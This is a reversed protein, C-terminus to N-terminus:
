YRVFASLIRDPLKGAERTLQYDRESCSVLRNRPSGAPADIPVQVWWRGSRPSRWFTVQDRLQTDVVYETMGKSEVPFDNCRLSMGYLFYWALQAYAAATLHLATNSDGESPCGYVGFSAMRDSNGGYFCLQSAEQLSFGSAHWGEQAPAEAHLISGIHFQMVDCDRIAPELETLEARALGLPFTDFHRREFLAALAPDVLHRQAGIHCLHFAPTGKRHIAADLPRAPTVEAASSLSVSQDVTCIGVQRNLEGFALYQARIFDEDAGLLIPVIGSGHLERLLPISFEVGSRRLNGLDALVLEGMDWSLSYLASRVRDAVAPTVGILVAQTRATIRLDLQGGITPSGKGFATTFDVSPPTLWNAYM